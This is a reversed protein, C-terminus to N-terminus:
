FKRNYTKTRYKGHKEKIGESEKSCNEMKENTELSNINSQQFM